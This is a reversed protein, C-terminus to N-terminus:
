LIVADLYQFLSGKVKISLCDGDTGENLFPSLVNKKTIWINLIRYTKIKMKQLIRRTTLVTPASRVGLVLPLSSFFASMLIHFPCGDYKSLPM